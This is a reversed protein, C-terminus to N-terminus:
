HGQTPGTTITPPPRQIWAGQRTSLTVVGGSATLDNGNSDKLQVTITSTSSGNATIEEPAATIISKTVDGTTGVIFDVTADDTINTGDLKGTITATEATTSSTLTGTYTGDDNDTATASDLSGATTSLTVVGGSATLDNGNSDKLQVTITSTSSGNATIEEPDATIISKTVDGPGAAGTPKIAITVTRWLEEIKNEFGATRTPGALEQSADSAALGPRSGKAEIIYRTTDPNTIGTYEGDVIGSIRVVTTNPVTTNVSPATPFFNATDTIAFGWVDIPDAPDAGSYRLIGGTTKNAGRAGEQTFAFESPPDSGVILYWVKFACESNFCRHEDGFDILTWQSTDGGPPLINGNPAHIVAAILLDTPDGGEPLAMTISAGQAEVVASESSSVWHPAGDDAAARGTQWALLLTGMLLLALLAPFMALGRRVTLETAKACIM